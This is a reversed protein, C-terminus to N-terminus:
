RRPSNLKKYILKDLYAGLLSPNDFSVTELVIVDGSECDNFQFEFTYEPWYCITGVFKSSDINASYSDAQKGELFSVSIGQRKLNDREVQLWDRLANKM